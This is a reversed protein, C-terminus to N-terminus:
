APSKAGQASTGFGFRRGTAISLALSSRLIQGGGEGQSGDIQIVDSQIAMSKVEPTRIEERSCGVLYWWACSM